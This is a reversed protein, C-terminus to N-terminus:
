SRPEKIIRKYWSGFSGIELTAFRGKSATSSVLQWQQNYQNYEGLQFVSHSNFWRPFFNMHDAYTTGADIQRPSHNAYDLWISSERIHTAHAWSWDAARSRFHKKTNMISSKSHSVWEGMWKWYMTLTICKNNHTHTHTQVRVGVRKKCKKTVQQNYATAWCLSHSYLLAAGQGRM